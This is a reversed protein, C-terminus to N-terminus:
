HKERTFISDDIAVNTKYDSYAADAAAHVFPIAIVAHQTALVEFGGVHQYHQTMQIVGGNYYHWEMGDIHQAVPDIAVDEHDIMGRVKQVLRVVVDQHGEFTKDGAFSMEFRREWSSPDDIDSYLRDFGKAYAPVKVFVVEFDDPRRFYTTGQLHESVFPFSRLHFDVSVAAEFSRMEANQGAIAAVLDSPSSETEASARTTLLSGLAFAGAALAAVFRGRGHRGSRRASTAAPPPEPREGAASVAFVKDLATIRLTDLLSTRSARLSVSAGRERVERLLRILASIIPSDLVGIDDIDIAIASAGDDIVAHMVDSRLRELVDSTPLKTLTFASVTASGL